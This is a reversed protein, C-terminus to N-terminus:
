RASKKRKKDDFKSGINTATRPRPGIHPIKVRSLNEEKTLKGNKNTKTNSM